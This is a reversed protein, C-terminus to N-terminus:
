SKRHKSRHMIKAIELLDLRDDPTLPAAYAILKNMTSDYTGALKQDGLLEGLSIDLGKALKRLTELTPNSEGLELAGIQSTTPMECRLALEMQSIGLEKRLRKVRKGLEQQDM